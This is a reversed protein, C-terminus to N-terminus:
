QKVVIEVGNADRPILDIAKQKQEETMVQDDVEILANAAMINDEFSRISAWPSDDTKLTDSVFKADLYRTSAAGCAFSVATIAIAVKNVKV